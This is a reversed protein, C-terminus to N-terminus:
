RPLNCNAIGRKRLKTKMNFATEPLLPLFKANPFLPCPELRVQAGSQVWPDKPPFIIGQPILERIQLLLPPDTLRYVSPSKSSPFNMQFLLLAGILETGARENEKCQNEASM